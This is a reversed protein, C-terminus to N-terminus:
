EWGTNQWNVGTHTRMKIAESQPLPYLYYKEQWSAREFGIRTYTLNSGNQTISMGTLYHETEELIKWRRVDFYRHEEFAFEIRRENRYKKEFAEKSLGAPFIKMGARDRVANVADCASFRYNRGIEIKEDPGHSQYATEAFNLYIEAMRLLRVAGDANNDRESKWNNYKRLYYGTRTTRRDAVTIGDPEGVCTNVTPAGAAPLTRPAGNYYITAYFRPDRGEYPHDPDYGSAANIIPNLHQEDRYGTIPPEGTALMEYSDVLEQTPCPGAKLQGPTSPMGASSWVEVATRGYITEKDYARQEDPRTIFYLAYSNQAIAPKPTDEFLEYGHSLCQYLAEGTIKTAEELSYGGDNWLPSIAYTVAQSKIAHAVARTMIGAQGYFVNWSFGRQVDPRALASDCDALIQKVVEGFPARTDAGYDHDVTYAETIIPVAGYRKILQLYYFARLTYVEASMGSVEAETLMVDEAVVHRINALFINCKRIGEFYSSWPNGDTASFSAANYVNGYWYSYLSNAFNGDAEQADDCLASRNYHTVPVYLYCANRYAGIGGKTAFVKPITSRGDNEMELLDNCSTYILGAGVSFWVMVYKKMADM